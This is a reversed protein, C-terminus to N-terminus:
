RGERKAAEEQILKQRKAIVALSKNGLKGGGWTRRHEANDNFSERAIVALNALEQKDEKRVDIFAVAATNKRHVLTGLRSKDHVIVYPIELKRCLTPIPVVLEVPDVNSAIIVLKATKKEISKIVEQAGHIISLPKKLNEPVEGKLRSEAVKLLRAKKAAPAETRYKALLKFLAATAQQDLLRTFQNVAPPVKLRTTLIRRQRQIRIYRPWRVYRTLDRKPQIDNGIGYNRITKQHLPEFRPGPIRSRKKREGIVRKAGKKVGGKNGGKAAPAKPTSDKSKSPAPKKDKPPM